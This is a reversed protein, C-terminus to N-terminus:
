INQKYLSYGTVAMQKIYMNSSWQNNALSIIYKSKIAHVNREYIKNIVNNKM